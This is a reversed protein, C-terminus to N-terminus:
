RRNRSVMRPGHGIGGNKDANKGPQDAHPNKGPKGPQQPTSPVNKPTMPRMASFKKPGGTCNDFQVNCTRYICFEWADYRQMCRSQCGLYRARCTQGKAEAPEASLMLASGLTVLAGSAIMLKRMSHILLTKTM